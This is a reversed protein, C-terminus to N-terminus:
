VREVKWMLSKKSDVHAPRSIQEVLQRSATSDSAASRKVGPTYILRAYIFGDCSARLHSLEGKVHCTNAKCTKIEEAELQQSLGSRAKVAPRKSSSPSTRNTDVRGEKKYFWINPLRAWKGSCFTPPFINWDSKGKALKVHPVYFKWLRVYNIEVTSFPNNGIM